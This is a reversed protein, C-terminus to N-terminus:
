YDELDVEVNMTLSTPIVDYEYPIFFILNFQDSRRWRMRQDLGDITVRYDPGLQDSITKIEDLILKIVEGRYQHPDVVSITVDTDSIVSARGTEDISDKFVTLKQALSYPDAVNDPIPTRLVLTTRSTDARNGSTIPLNDSSRLPYILGDEDISITIDNERRARAILTDVTQVIERKRLAFERSDSEIVVDMLLFDGQRQLFVGPTPDDIRSGTVVVSDLRQEQAALPAAISLGLAAMIALKSLTHQM